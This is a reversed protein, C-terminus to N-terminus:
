FPGDPDFMQFSTQNHLPTPETFRHRRKAAQDWRFTRPGRRRQIVRVVAIVSTVVWAAFATALYVYAATLSAEQTFAHAWGLSDGLALVIAGIIGPALMELLAGALGILTMKRTSLVRRLAILTYVTALFLM